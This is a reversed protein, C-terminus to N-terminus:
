RRLMLDLKPRLLNHLLHWLFARSGAVTRRVQAQAQAPKAIRMLKTTLIEGRRM